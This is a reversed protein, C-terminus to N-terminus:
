RTTTSHIVQYIQIVEPQNGNNSHFTARLIAHHLARDLLLMSGDQTKITHLMQADAVIYDINNWDEHLLGGHIAPDLAVNWYIQANTYSAGNAVGEGGAAHLDTYLASDVVVFSNHSVNDRVWLLANNQASTANLSFVPAALQLNYPVLAGIFSFILLVRVLDFGVHKTAWKLPANLAVAINLAMLPLLPIIYYSYVVGGRLLFLWFSMALFALIWQLRNRWGGILNIIVAGISAFLLPSDIGTWTAWSISLNYDATPATLQQVLTTILSPHARHDWPLFGTPFLEGKLIALLVFTSAFSLTIYTFVVLAFKRQFTTSHFWVAYLMVPLFIIFLEKTLIAIGFSFAAFLTYRLRSGGWVLLCLSLLLWFTGINELQVQRQYIISLPSLSFIIMALLGTSRSGSMRNAILYVLLASAAAYILIVVRGTNIANGFAFFGGILRIWAALQIWGLPPQQYIYPYPQLMGHTIAWANSVYTGENQDYLPYQFMNFAHVAIAIVLGLLVVLAEIIRPYPIAKALVPNIVEVGPLLRTEAETIRLKEASLWRVQDIFSTGLRSTNGSRKRLPNRRQNPNSVARVSFRTSRYLIMDDGEIEQQLLSTPTLGRHNDAAGNTARGPEANPSYPPVMQQANLPQEVAGPYGGQGPYADVRPRNDGVGPYSLGAGRNDPMAPPYLAPPPTNAAM